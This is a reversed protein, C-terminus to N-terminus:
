IKIFTNVLAQHFSHAGHDMRNLHLQVEWSERESQYKQIYKSRLKRITYNRRGHGVQSQKTEDEIEGEHGRIGIEKAEIEKDNEAHEEEAEDAHQIHNNEPISIEFDDVTEGMLGPDQDDFKLNCQNRLFLDFIDTYYFQSYDDEDETYYSQVSHRADDDADGNNLSNGHNDDDPDDETDSIPCFVFLM